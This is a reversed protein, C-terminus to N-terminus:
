NLAGYTPRRRARTYVIEQLMLQQKLLCSSNIVKHDSESDRWEHILLVFIFFVVFSCVPIVSIISVTLM